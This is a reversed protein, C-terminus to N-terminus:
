EHRKKLEMKEAIIERIKQEHEEKSLIDKVNVNLGEHSKNNDSNKLQEQLYDIKKQLEERKAKIEQEKLESYTLKPAHSVPFPM